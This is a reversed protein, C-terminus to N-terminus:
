MITCVSTPLNNAKTHKTQHGDSKTGILIAYKERCLKCMASKVNSPSILIRIGKGCKCCKCSVFEENM